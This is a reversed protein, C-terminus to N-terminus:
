LRGDDPAAAAKDPTVARATARVAMSQALCADDHANAEAHSPYRYVGKPMHGTKCLAALSASFAAGEKLATASALFTPSPEARKGITRM